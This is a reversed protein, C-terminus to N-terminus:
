RRHEPVDTRDRPGQSKLVLAAIAGFLVIAGVTVMPWQAGGGIYWGVFMVIAGVVMLGLYLGVGSKAQEM